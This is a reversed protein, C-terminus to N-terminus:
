RQNDYNREYKPNHKKKEGTDRSSKLKKISFKAKWNDIGM